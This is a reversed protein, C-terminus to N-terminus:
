PALEATVELPRQFEVLADREAADVLFFEAHGAALRVVQHHDVVGDPMADGRPGRGVIHAAQCLERGDGGGGEHRGHQREIGAHQLRCRKSRSPTRSM